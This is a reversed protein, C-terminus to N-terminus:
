EERKGELGQRAVCNEVFQRAARASRGGQAISYASAEKCFNEMDGDEPMYGYERAIEEVLQHYQKEAPKEFFVCQGFRQSLSLTEQMTDRRHVDDGTRASLSEKVLHRRNSTAYIVTSAGRACVSGELVAKLASFSDDNEGFSLDDIYVIFKLPEDSLKELLEPLLDLQDRGVEVLRLGRDAFKNLVAKISASKGTGADGYLLLNSCPLGELLAETNDIITQHQSEYGYLSDFTVPDSNRVPIIQLGDGPALRFMTAQAFVGTGYRDLEMLRNIYRGQLNKHEAIWMAPATALVKKTTVAGALSLDSLERMASQFMVSSCDERISPDHSSVASPEHVLCTEMTLVQQELYDAWNDTRHKYLLGAFRAMKQPLLHRDPMHDIMDCFAMFVEDEYLDMFVSLERLSQSLTLPDFPTSM